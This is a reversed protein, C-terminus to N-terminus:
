LKFFNVEDCINQLNNSFKEITSSLEPNDKMEAMMITEFHSLDEIIKRFEM